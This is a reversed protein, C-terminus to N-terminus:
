QALYQRKIVLPANTTGELMNIEKTRTILSTSSWGIQMSLLGEFAHMIYMTMEHSVPELMIREKLSLTIKVHNSITADTVIAWATDVAIHPTQQVANVVKDLFETDIDYNLRKPVYLTTTVVTTTIYEHLNSLMEKVARLDERVEEEIKGIRENMMISFQEHVTANTMLDSSIIDNSDM